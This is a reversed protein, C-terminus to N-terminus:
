DLAFEEQWEKGEPWEPQEEKLFLRDGLVLADMDTRMFCRYADEATRVIPEGRVNFSTNAILPEGVADYLLEIINYLWAHSKRNITQIRASLDVHTIAPFDSKQIGLKEKLSLNRYGQPLKKLFPQQLNGVLLMYPSTYNMDFIRNAHEDLVMPAFPRFSERYKIKVNLKRQMDSDSVRAIISRNGLARPGFEMRGRCIGIVKNEILLNLVTQDFSGSFLHPNANYKRIVHNIETTSVEDGLFANQMSDPYEVLRTKGQYIYWAALAAGLSGGADGAAPQIFLEKFLGSKLLKGNAVCNLAVGGALCLNDSPVLTKAHKALKLVIKELVHQIALALDAHLQQLEEEPMRQKLGFLHEFNSKNIMYLAKHFKFYKMNLQISGDEHIYVIESEIKKVFLKYDESECNGFPALGMMKYEGSNVKFGLFLTFASYLLGVSHPFKQEKLVTISNTNGICITSSAWEGVGDITLIASTKFPSTFFASAAHSLHHEPFIIKISKKSTLGLKKLYSQIERRIFLKEKLWIPMSKLYMQLGQPAVNYATELIREFKLLPKDYFAVIDVNNITIGAFYLANEIANIPFSADHKKRTYREEQAAFIIEGDKVLTVAADHYFSSIGLIYM